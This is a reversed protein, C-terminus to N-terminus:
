ESAPLSPPAHQAIIRLLNELMFPKQLTCATGLPANDTNASIVCVPISALEPDRRMENYAQWGTMVPMMLDLLVLRVKRARMIELARRGNPAVAVEYGEDVLAESIAERLLEDDDVVLIVGSAM